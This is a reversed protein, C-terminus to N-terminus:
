SGRQRGVAEEDFDGCAVKESGRGRGRARDEDPVLKLGEDVGEWTLM